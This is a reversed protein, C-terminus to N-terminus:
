VSIINNHTNRSRIGPNRQYILGKSPTGCVLLPHFISAPGCFLPLICRWIQIQEIVIFVIVEIFYCRQFYATVRIHGWYGQHLKVFKQSLILWSCKTADLTTRTWAFADVIFFFIWFYILVFINVKCNWGRDFLWLLCHFIYKNLGTLGQQELCWDKQYHVSYQVMSLQNDTQSYRITRGHLLMQTHATNCTIFFVRSGTHFDNVTGSIERQLPSTSLFMLTPWIDWFTRLLLINSVVSYHSLVFISLEWNHQHTKKSTCLQM